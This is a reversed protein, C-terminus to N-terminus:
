YFDHRGLPRGHNEHTFADKNTTFSTPAGPDNRDGLWPLVTGIGTSVPDLTVAIRAGLFHVGPALARDPDAADVLHATTPDLPDSFVIMPPMLKPPIEASGSLHPAMEVSVFTGQSYNLPYHALLNAAIWDISNAREGVQRAGAGALLCIVEGDPLTLSAAEGRIHPYDDDSVGPWNQWNPTKVYTVEVVTSGTYVTDDIKAEFSVRYHVPVEIWGIKYEHGAWALWLWAFILAALAFIAGFGTAVAILAYKFPRSLASVAEM